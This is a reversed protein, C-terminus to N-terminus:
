SLYPDPPNVAVTVFPIQLVLLSDNRTASFVAHFNRKYYFDFLVPAYRLDHIADRESDGAPYVPAPVVYLRPSKARRSFWISIQM